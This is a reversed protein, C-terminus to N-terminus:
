KTKAKSNEDLWRNVEHINFRMGGDPLVKCTLGKKRWNRVTTVSVGMKKALETQTFDAQSLKAIYESHVEKRIEEKLKPIEVQLQEAVMGKVIEDLTMEM